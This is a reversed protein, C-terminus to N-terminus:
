LGGVVSGALIGEVGAVAAYILPTVWIIKWNRWQVICAWAAVVMHVTGLLLLTWLTTFRWIDSPFYLYKPVAIDTPVPWYLSPFDPVEYDPPAASSVRQIFSATNALCTSAHTPLRAYRM